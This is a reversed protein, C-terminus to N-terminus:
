LYYAIYTCIYYVFECSKILHLKGVIYGPQFTNGIIKPMFPLFYVFGWKHKRRHKNSKLNLKIKNNRDDKAYYM